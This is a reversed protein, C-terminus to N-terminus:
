LHRKIDVFIINHNVIRRFLEDQTDTIKFARKKSSVTQNKDKKFIKPKPTLHNLVQYYNQFIM